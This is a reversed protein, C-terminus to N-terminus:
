KLCFENVIFHVHRLRVNISNQCSHIGIYSLCRDFCLVYNGGWFTIEHGKRPSGWGKM